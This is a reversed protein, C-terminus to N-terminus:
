LSMVRGMSRIKKLFPMLWSCNGRSSNANLFFCIRRRHRCNFKGFRICFLLGVTGVTVVVHALLSFRILNSHNYRVPQRAMVWSCTAKYVGPVMYEKIESFTNKRRYLTFLIHYQHILENNLLVRVTRTPRAVLNITITVKTTNMPLCQCLQCAEKAICNIISCPRLYHVTIIQSNLCMLM